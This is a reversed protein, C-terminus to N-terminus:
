ISLDELLDSVSDIVREPKISSREFYDKRFKGTRVLVGRLGIQQAGGIDSDIDDGVMIVEEPSLGTSNLAMKFFAESPKGILMADLGSAYELGTVFAGIDLQLGQETQWFRNKHIAILRSGHTLSSFISNLLEYSWNKGIDGILIYDPNDDRQNLSHFDTKVDDALVLRVTVNNLSKLYLLAAQPASIIENENVEFGLDMLKNQLSSISLTSTNTVFRCVIGKSRVSKVVNIAGEIPDKGVFLVGDLDFLIGKVGSLRNKGM